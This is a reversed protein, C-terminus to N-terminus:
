QPQIGSAKMIMGWKEIEQNLYTALYESSQRDPSVAISGAARLRDQFSPNNLAAKAASNLKKVVVDPTAKPAFIAFWSYGDTVALGQEKATPLDPLLQSRAETLVALARISSSTMLGMAAPALPCYYDLTGAIMDQLAPASGRYPVHTVNVGIAENVLACALYPGAGIGGSGFQMKAHNKRTYEVFEHVNSVPLSLRVTLLLPQDAILAVPAFDKVSDYRLQAYLFRAQAFTDVASLVIQYGDPAAKAVRDVAMTGGAGGMNEVVIQQGLHQSMEAAVIRAVVDTASGAGFPVIMTVYRAPWTQAHSSNGCLATAAVAMLGILLRM